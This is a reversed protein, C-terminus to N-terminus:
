KTDSLRNAEKGKMWDTLYSRLLRVQSGMFIRSCSPKGSVACGQPLFVTPIGAFVPLTLLARGELGALYVGFSCKDVPHFSSLHTGLPCMLCFLLLDGYLGKLVTQQGGQCGQLGGTIGDGPCWQSM